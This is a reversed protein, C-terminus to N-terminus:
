GCDKPPILHDLGRRRLYYRVIGAFPSEGSAKNRLMMEANQHIVPSESSRSYIEILPKLEALVKSRRRKLQERNLDCVSISVHAREGAGDDLESGPILAAEEGYYEYEFYEEPDETMPNIICPDEADLDPNEVTARANRVPFENSKRNNCIQCSLLLNEWTYALWWYVSKPRYHEVDGWAVHEVSGECYSCKGHSIQKLRDKVDQHGYINSSFSWKEQEGNKIREYQERLDRDHEEKNNQETLSEPPEVGSGNRNLFIM